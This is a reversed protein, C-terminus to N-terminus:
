MKLLSCSPIPVSEVIIYKDRAEILAFFDKSKIIPCGPFKDAM